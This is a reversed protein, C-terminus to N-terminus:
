RVVGLRRLAGMAAGEVESAFEDVSVPSGDRVQRLRIVESGRSAAEELVADFASRVRSLFEESEYSELRARNRLREMVVDLPVEIFIIADAEPAFSNIDWLWRTDAGAAGQYAISSYKYRDSVVVYGSELARLLGGGPLSPDEYIHWARDAAFLLAMSRPNLPRGGLAQRILTGVPGETPEKTYVASLGASSLAQVLRRSHTTLGSGDLGEFAM